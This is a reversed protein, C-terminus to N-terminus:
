DDNTSFWTKSWLEFFVYENYYNMNCGFKMNCGFVTKRHIQIKKIGRGLNPSTLHPNIPNLNDERVRVREWLALPHFPTVHSFLVSQRSLVISGVISGIANEFIRGSNDSLEKSLSM